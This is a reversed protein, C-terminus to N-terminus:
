DLPSHSLCNEWKDIAVSLAVFDLDVELDVKFLFYKTPLTRM